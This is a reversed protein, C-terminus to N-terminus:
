KEKQKCILKVIKGTLPFFILAAVYGAALLPLQLSSWVPFFLAGPGVNKLVVCASIGVVNIIVIVAMMVFFGAKQPIHLMRNIWMGIKKEPIVFGIVMNVIWAFAIDCVFRFVGPIGGNMLSAVLTLVTSVFLDQVVEFIIDEKQM